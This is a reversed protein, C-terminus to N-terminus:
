KNASDYINQLFHNKTQQHEPETYAHTENSTTTLWNQTHAGEPNINAMINGTRTAIHKILIHAHPQRNHQSQGGQQLGRSGREQTENSCSFWISTTCAIVRCCLTTYYTCLKMYNENMWRVIQISACNAWEWIIRPLWIM